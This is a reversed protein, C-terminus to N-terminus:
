ALAVRGPGAELAALVEYERRFATRLNARGAPSLFTANRTRYHGHEHRERYRCGLWRAAAAVDAALRETHLLAYPRHLLGKHLVSGVYFELGETIHARPVSLFKRALDACPGAAVIGLAFADVTPFCAYFKLEIHPYTHGHIKGNRTNNPHRWNFASVVIIIWAPTM